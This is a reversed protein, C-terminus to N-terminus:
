KKKALGGIFGQVIGLGQKAYGKGEGFSQKISGELAQGARSAEAISQCIANPIAPIAMLVGLALFQRILVDGMDSFLPPTFSFNGTGATAQIGFGIPDGQAPGLLYAAFYFGAFVGPFALVNCLMSRFWNASSGGPLSAILFQFPATITLIIIQLYNGILTFLTRIMAVMLAFILIVWLVLSIVFAPDGAAYSGPLVCGLFGALPVGFLGQSIQAGYACTALGAVTRAIRSALGDLQLILGAAQDSAQGEGANGIFRAFIELVNDHELIAAPNSTSIGATVFIQGVFRSGVFALDVMLSSIFYSFTILLLGVVLNPLALQITVVTQANLKHRFMVMFGVIIFIFTMLIYTINRIVQWLQRIPDIVLSGSGGVGQAYAPKTLGFNQKLDALYEITNTPPNFYMTVMAIQMTGIAGGGPIKDMLYAVAPQKSLSGTRNLQQLYVVCQQQITSQGETFCSLTHMLNLVTFNAHQPAKYNDPTIPDAQMAPQNNPPTSEHNTALIPSVLFFSFIFITLCTFISYQAFSVTSLRPLMTENKCVHLYKDLLVKFDLLLPQIRQFIPSRM